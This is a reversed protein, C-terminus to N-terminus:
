NRGGRHGRAQGQPGTGTCNGAGAGKGAGSMAGYGTGDKPGVGRNGTGDGPGYGHGRKQGARAQQLDCIGDGDADVFNPGVRAQTQGNAPANPQTSQQAAALSAFLVVIGLATIITRKM